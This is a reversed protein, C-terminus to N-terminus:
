FMEELFDILEDFDKTSRIPTNNQICDNGIQYFNLLFEDKDSQSSVSTTFFYYPKEKEVLSYM